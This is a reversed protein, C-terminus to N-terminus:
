SAFVALRGLYAAANTLAPAASFASILADLEVNPQGYDPHIICASTKKAPRYTTNTYPDGHEFTKTWMVDHFPGVDMAWHLLGGTGIDWAKCGTYDGSARANTVWPLKASLMLSAPDALCYQLPMQLEAAARHQGVLWQEACTLCSPWRYMAANQGTFDQEFNTIGM